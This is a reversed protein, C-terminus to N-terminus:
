GHEEGGGGPRLIGHLYIEVFQDIMEQPQQGGFLRRFADGALKETVYYSFFLGVFSRIIVVPPLDRLDTSVGVLRGIVPFFRPAFQVFLDAVDRGDFEVLEIFMLKLLDPRSDLVEVMLRAASRVVQEGTQGEAQELAPLLDHFPHRHFLVERWIHEKGEFHAYIGGTTVGARQSIQRISTASYGQEIFLQYAADVVRQRTQESRKQVPNM